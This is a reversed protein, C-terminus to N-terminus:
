LSGPDEPDAITFDTATMGVVSLRAPIGTKRRYKALAQHPHITGAWTENDTYVCFHDIEMGKRLAWVMPLACDTRGFPLNSVTGIADDLRQRPSIDLPSIGAARWTRASTFGAVFAAPETSATVLALAASAERCSLPLGSVAQTMSGSVDLALMTRKGAPEMTGFSRSFATDLADCVASVPIWAGTGRAGHGGAYTRLAVLVHVPHIRAKRLSEPDALRRTVTDTLTSMPKLVGLTTLRGLNRILAGLPLGSGILAAWVDAEALAESPLMEWSLSRNGEIL